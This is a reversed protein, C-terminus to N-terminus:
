NWICLLPLPGYFGFVNSVDYRFAEKAAQEIAGRSPHRSIVDSARAASDQHSLVQDERGGTVPRRPHPVVVVLFM